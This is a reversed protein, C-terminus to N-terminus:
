PGPRATAAARAVALPKAQVTIAEPTSLAAGSTPTVDVGLKTGEGIEAPVFVNLEIYTPTSAKVSSQVRPVSLAVVNSTVGAPGTITAEAGDLNRGRIFVTSTTGRFVTDTISDVAPAGRTITFDVDGTSLGRFERGHENHLRVAYVKAVGEPALEDIHLNATASL